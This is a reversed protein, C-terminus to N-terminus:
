TLDADTIKNEVLGYMIVFPQMLPDTFKYKYRRSVGLKTLINGRDSNSFENLHRAFSPIECMKGKIKGLPICIDQAAFEGFESQKAAIAAALLVDSFLNEKRASAIANRYNTKISQQSSEIATNIANNINRMDINFSFNIIADQTAYLGLSHAYYPLGQAMLTIHNLADNDIQMSLKNIGTRIITEIENNNMRPMQIQKLARAISAHEEVLDNVSEGVGILVITSSVTYDSLNKILDAFMRKAENNVRDFEDIIIIQYIEKVTILADRVVDPSFFDTQNFFHGPSVKQANEHSKFGVNKESVILQMTNFVRYWISEFTDGNNCQVRVSSLQGGGPSLDKLINALSTKGVGREGFIIVHLGMQFIAEFVQQIQKLRGAFLEKSGIPSSPHFYIGVETALRFQQEKTM